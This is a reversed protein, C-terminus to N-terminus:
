SLTSLVQTNGTVTVVYSLTALQQSQYTARRTHLTPPTATPDTMTLAAQICLGTITPDITSIDM